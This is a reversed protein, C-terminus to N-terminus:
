LDESFTYLLDNYFDKMPWDDIYLSDYLNRFKPLREEIKKNLFGVTYITQLHKVGKTMDIDGASDGAVVAFTRDTHKGWYPSTVKGSGTKNCSTILDGFGCLLGDKDWQCKNSIVTVNSTLLGDEELRISVVDEIGASMVLVPIDHKELLNLIEKAYPRLKIKSEKVALALDSQKLGHKIALEHVSSWWENMKKEKTAFDITPDIEIPYYIDLLRKEERKFEEDLAAPLCGHCTKNRVGPESWYASLTQDFDFVFICKDKGAVKLAEVKTHRKSRRKILITFLVAISISAFWVGSDEIM